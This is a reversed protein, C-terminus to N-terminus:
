NAPSVEILAVHATLKRQLDAITDARIVIKTVDSVIRQAPIVNSYEKTAPKNEVEQVDIVATYHKSM